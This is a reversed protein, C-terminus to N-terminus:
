SVSGLRALVTRRFGVVFGESQIFLSEDIHYDLPSTRFAILMRPLSLDVEPLLKAVEHLSPEYPHCYIGFLRLSARIVSFLWRTTRALCQRLHVADNSTGVTEAIFRRLKHITDGIYYLAALREQEASVQFSPIAGYIAISVNPRMSLANLIESNYCHRVEALDSLEHSGLQTMDVRIGYHLQAHVIVTAISGVDRKLTDCFVVILDIDSWGIIPKTDRVLGGFLLLCDINDHGHQLLSQVVYELCPGYANSRNARLFAQYYPTLM